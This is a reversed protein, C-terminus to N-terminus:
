CIVRGEQVDSGGIYFWYSRMLSLGSKNRTVLRFLLTSKQFFVALNSPFMVHVKKTVVEMEFDLTQM